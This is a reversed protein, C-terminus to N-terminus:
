RGVGLEVAFLNATDATMMVVEVSTQLLLSGVVRELRDLCLLVTSHVVAEVLNRAMTSSAFLTVRKDHDSIEFTDLISVEACDTFRCEFRATSVLGRGRYAEM